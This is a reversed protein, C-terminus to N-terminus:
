TSTQNLRSDRSPMEGDVPIVCSMKELRSVRPGLQPQALGFDRHRHSIQSASTTLFSSSEEILPFMAHTRRAAFTVLCTPWPKSKDDGARHADVGVDFTYGIGDRSQRLHLINEQWADSGILRRMEEEDPIPQLLYQFGVVLSWLKPGAANEAIYLYLQFLRTPLHFPAWIVCGRLMKVYQPPVGDGEQADGEVIKRLFALENLPEEAWVVLRERATDLDEIENASIEPCIRPLARDTKIYIFGEM